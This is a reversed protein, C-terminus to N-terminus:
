RWRQHPSCAETISAARYKDFDAHYSIGFTGKAACQVPMTGHMWAMGPPVLTPVIL